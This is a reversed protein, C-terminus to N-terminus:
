FASGLLYLLDYDIEAIVGVLGELVIAAVYRHRQPFMLHRLLQCAPMRMEIRSRMDYEFHLIGAPPHVRFRLLSNKLREERRLLDPLASSQSQRDNVSDHLPMVAFYHDFALGALARSEPDKQWWGPM